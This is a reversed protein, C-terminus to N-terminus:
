EATPDQQAHRVAKKVAQEVEYRNARTAEAHATIATQAREAAKRWRRWQADHEDNTLDALKSREEEASRELKILEDLGETM